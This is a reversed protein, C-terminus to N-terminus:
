YQLRHSSAEPGGRKRLVIQVEVCLGPVQRGVWRNFRWWWRRFELFRLAGGSVIRFGRVDISELTSLRQLDGLLTRLSWAQVHSRERFGWLQDSARILWPRLRHLGLPFIPVGIIVAGGPAVIREIDKLLPAYEHLHELVQECVVVDYEPSPLDPLGDELDGDVLKWDDRRYVRDKGLPFLDVGTLAVADGKFPARELHPELYRLTRGTHVGIDLLKAPRRYERNVRAIEKAVVEALRHYRAQRLEYPARRGPEVGFAVEGEM